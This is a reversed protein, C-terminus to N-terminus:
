ADTTGLAPNVAHAHTWEKNGPYFRIRSNAPQILQLFFTLTQIEASFFHSM